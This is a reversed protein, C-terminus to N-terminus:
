SRAYPNPFGLGALIRTERTEMRRAEPSREHDYGLLHLTGHVVLHAWHARATKGQAAAEAAVVPACIVIDGLLRPEVEAPLEAPFSLVNTPKDKSRYERNLTRSEEEDVVRISIDGTAGEASLTADVWRSFEPRRPVSRALTAVQVDVRSV